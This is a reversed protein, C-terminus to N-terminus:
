GADERSGHVDPLPWPPRDGIRRDVSLWRQQPHTQIQLEQRANCSLARGATPGVFLAQEFERGFDEIEEFDFLVGLSQLGGTALNLILNISRKVRDQERGDTLISFITPDAGAPFMTVADQVVPIGMQEVTKMYSKMGMFPTVSRANSFVIKGYIPGSSKLRDRLDLYRVSLALIVFAWQDLNLISHYEERKRQMMNFFATLLEDKAAPLSLEKHLKDTDHAARKGHAM